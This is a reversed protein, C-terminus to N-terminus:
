NCCMTVNLCVRGATAAEASSLHVTCVWARECVDRTLRERPQQRRGRRPGDVREWRAGAGAWQQRGAGRAQSPPPAAQPPPIGGPCRRQLYLDREATPGMVSTHRSISSGGIRDTGVSDARMFVAPPSFTLRGSRLQFLRGTALGRPQSVHEAPGTRLGESADCRGSARKTRLSIVSRPRVVNSWFLLAFLWNVFDIRDAIELM